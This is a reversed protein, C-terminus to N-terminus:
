QGLDNNIAINQEICQKVATRAESEIVAEEHLNFLPISNM